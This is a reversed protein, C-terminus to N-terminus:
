KATPFHQVFELLDAFDQPKLGAELGEPMLSKRQSAIKKIRDRPISTEKGYAERLTISAPTDSTVIGLVNEGDKTDVTYAIYNAAVERNPDLISLMLKEPGGNRVTVLDPGVANGENGARHCSICRQAFIKHGRELDGQLSLAPKLAEIAAERQAAPAVLVNQARSRIAQDSHNLLRAVQTASLDSQSVRKEELGMLLPIAREPRKVLVDAAAIRVRPSLEPWMGVVARAFEHATTADLSDLAALQLSELDKSSLVGLLAPQAIKPPAHKLLKIGALRFPRPATRDAVVHAADEFTPNLESLLVADDGLGSALGAALTFRNLADKEDKIASFLQKLTAPNKQAGILQALQARIPHSRLKEDKSLAAFLEAASTSASSLVAAQLWTNDPDRSLITALADANKESTLEGLSFALQYRVIASPDDALSLLKEQIAPSKSHEALGIAHSRVNEDGDALATQLTADDLASLGDLAHLAHIKGLPSGNAVLKKLPEIASKDQKEFLLRAATDRHWGNPHDLTAVLEDISASGLKPLKPQKFGDPVVRYIRGRDNGSNLDLFKKINPPISWPHEITERYMDAIYLTGDPANAFDVPRFWNDSSRVFELNNEDKPRDAILEIGNRKIHDHHVLNGGADGTFSDGVFDPGFANGRYVTIGTAGTFYGASRGGGEVPGGVLGAIRWRTRIVRWPEEPSSRFVEAAPGDAAISIRPDPLTVNPNRAAYRADYMFTECHSSNTCTFLQGFQNFSLGYQGGGAETTMTSDRPNIVFGKNRVDLADGKNQEARVVMGGDHGSCGHIRNDLGWIFNNFLGQVNLKEDTGFGTFLTKVDDAVGDGNTDRAFLIDPCAGVLVGGNTWIVATAWPLHDLFITSKDFKGDGDTDELMRIRSLKEARRESYDRMEVVFLRGNEDFSMCIPDIVLPEAAVLEIHFGPRVQFTKMVDAPETAKVRPLDEAKVEPEAAQAPTVVFILLVIAFLRNM